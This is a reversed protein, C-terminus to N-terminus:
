GVQCTYLDMAVNGAMGCYGKVSNSIRNLTPQPSVNIWWLSDYPEAVLGAGAAQTGQYSLQLLHWLSTSKEDKKEADSKKFRSKNERM